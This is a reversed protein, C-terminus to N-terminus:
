DMPERMAVVAVVAREGQAMLPEAAVAREGQM